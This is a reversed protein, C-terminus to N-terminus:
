YPTNSKKIADWDTVSEGEIQGQRAEPSLKHYGEINPNGDLGGAGTGYKEVNMSLGTHPETVTNHPADTDDDVSYVGSSIPSNRTLKIYLFFRVALRSLPLKSTV